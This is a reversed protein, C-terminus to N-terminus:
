IEHSAGREGAPQFVQRLNQLNEQAAVRWGERSDVRAEISVGGQYGINRLVAAYRTLHPEEPELRTFYRRGELQAIHTHVLWARGEPLLVQPDDGEVRLHYYDCLVKIQPHDVRAALRLADTIHNVMNTETHNNHEVAVVVGRAAALEGVQWLFAELQRLGEEMPFGEPRRRSWPSGFVAYGAGLRALRDFARSLYDSLEARPTVDPGVVRFAAPMFDNCARCPLGYARMQQELACFAEESFSSLQNLPLEVYDYGLEALEPVYEVGTEDQDKPLLNVCCGFKM